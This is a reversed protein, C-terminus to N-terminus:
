VSAALVEELRGKEVPVHVRQIAVCTGVVVRAAGNGPGAVRQALLHRHARQGGLNVLLLHAAVVGLELALVAVFLDQGAVAVVRRMRVLSIRLSDLLCLVARVSGFGVCPM